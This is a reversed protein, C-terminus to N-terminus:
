EMGNSIWEELEPMIVNCQYCGYPEGSSRSFWERAQEGSQKVVLDITRTFYRHCGYAGTLSRKGM